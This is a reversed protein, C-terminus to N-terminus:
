PNSKLTLRVEVPYHDSGIAALRRVSDVGFADDILCHDIPIGLLPFSAPWSFGIGQGARSDRLGTARTLRSFHPSYPTLNFDGCVVVAGDITGVHATLAELSRNRAAALERGVPPPPHVALFRISANGLMLEADIALTDGVAVPSARVLPHKSLLGIGFNGLEAELARHPYEGALGALAAELAPTLEIVSVIDADATRIAAVIAAHNRNASNVNMNLITVPVGAGPGEATPLYGLVPLGNVLATAGLMAAVLRARLAIAIVIALGALAIYQVRFHSLLELGWWYAAGLPLLGGCVVLWLLRTAITKM